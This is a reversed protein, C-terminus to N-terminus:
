PRDPTSVAQYCGGNPAQFLVSHVRGFPAIEVEVPEALITGGAARVRHATADADRVVITAGLTGRHPPRARGRLSAYTGPRMGYHILGLYPEQTTIGVNVARLNFERAASGVLQRFTDEEIGYRYVVRLDLAETFFRISPELESVAGSLSQPESFTRDTITAFQSFFDRPGSVIACVIEDPGWVHGEIFHGEPLDYEAVPERLAWGAEAIARRAAAFDPAYFDIVKPAEADFGRGRDRIVVPSVPEFSVLRAGYRTGRTGLVVETAGQAATGWQAVCEAMTLRRRHVEVM